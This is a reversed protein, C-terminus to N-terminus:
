SISILNSRISFTILDMANKCNTKQRIHLRHGEVTRVSIFLLKAIESSPKNLCILRIIRIERDTLHLDPRHIEPQSEITHSIAKALILSVANDYYYGQKHVMKIAEVIKEISTNKGLFGAAGKKIFDIIYSDKYHTSVIIVRVAPFKSKLKEFAEAGDMVPMEIDLLIVDPKAKKLQELLEKGNSADLVVQVEEFEKLLSILGQKVFLHDDAVGIKIPKKM